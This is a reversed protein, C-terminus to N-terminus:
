DHLIEKISKVIISLGELLSENSILLAPLIKLVEDYRGACEIILGNKFCLRSVEKALDNNIQSFDIGIILGRGRIDIMPFENLEKQLYNIALQSKEAVLLDMNVDERLELAKKATVFAHQNGRFTGNHQAPTWCDLEPKFLVIAMPLGYGSISKSVTVIDPVIKSEEFSFFSGTRGCGVQVEDAILLIEYKDCVRRVEQLWKVSAIQIGGEAQVTELIMAAPIDVGSSPDSLLAEIYAISDLNTMFGTEFPVFVVDSSSMPISDRFYSNGTLALSAESMGHFGGTFSFITRRKTYKKALKLAAENANTGSPSTFQVVYDLSRPKLIKENFTNLFEERASTALDLGHTIYDSEIYNLLEKKLEDNNHGYNLAGAGAFFDIYKEGNQGYMFEDKAKVFTIPFSKCYSKVNSEIM